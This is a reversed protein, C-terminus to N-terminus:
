GGGGRNVLRDVLARALDQGISIEIGGATSASQRDDGLLQAHRAVAQWTELRYRPNADPNNAVERWLAAGVEAVAASPSNVPSGNVFTSASLKARLLAATKDKRAQHMARANDSSIATKYNGALRGRDDLITGNDYERLHRGNDDTYERVVVAKRKVVQGSSMEGSAAVNGVNDSDGSM